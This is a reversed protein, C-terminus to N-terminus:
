RPGPVRGPEERGASRGVRAAHGQGRPLRRHPRRGEHARAQRRGAATGRSEAHARDTDRHLQGPPGDPFEEGNLPDNVDYSVMVTTAATYSRPLFAVIAMAACMVALIIILIAARYAWLIAYIQGLSPGPRLYQEPIAAIEASVPSAYSASLDRRPMAFREKRVNVYQPRGMGPAPNRASMRSLGRRVTQEDAYLDSGPATEPEGPATGQGHSRQPRSAPAAEWGRRRVGACANADAPPRRTRPRAPEIYTLTCVDDGGMGLKAEHRRPARDPAAHVIALAAHHFPRLPVRSRRSSRASLGTRLLRSALEGTRRRLAADPHQILELRARWREVDCLAPPQLALDRV